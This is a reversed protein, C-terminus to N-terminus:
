NQGIFGRLHNPVVTVSPGNEGVGDLRQATIQRPPPPPPEGRRGVLRHIEAPPHQSPAGKSHISSGAEVPKARRGGSNKM